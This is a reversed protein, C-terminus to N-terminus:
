SGLDSLERTFVIEHANELASQHAGIVVGREAHESLKVPPPERRPECRDRLDTSVADLLTSGARALGGGIVILAPDITHVLEFLGAAVHGAFEAIHREAEPDSRASAFLAVTSEPDNKHLWLNAAFWPTRRINALEGARGGVGRHLEGNVVIGFGIRRGALVHVVHVSGRAKGTRYEAVAALNADNEVHVDGEAAPFRHSLHALLHEGEWEPMVRCDVVTGSPDVVGPTGATVARVADPAVEAADLLGASVRDVAALRTARGDRRGLAVHGDYVFRGEGTGGSMDTLVGRVTHAGVDLGLAYGWDHRFGFLAPPRGSDRSPSALREVLGKELLPKMAGDVTPRSLRLEWVLTPVSRPEGGLLARAVRRINNQRLSATTASREISSGPEM